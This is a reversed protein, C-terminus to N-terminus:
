MTGRAADSEGILGALEADALILDWCALREMQGDAGTPMSPWMDDVKAVLQERLVAAKAAALVAPNYLRKFEDESIRGDGSIDLAKARKMAQLM